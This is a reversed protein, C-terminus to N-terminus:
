NHSASSAAMQELSHAVLDKQDDANLNRRLIKEAISTSLQATHAYIEQLAQKKAAEIDKLAQEKKAEAEQQAHMTIQKSIREAEATAGQMMDRVKSEATALQGNYIRVAEEAKSKASEADVIDKRIKQERSNLGDLLHKWATKKLIYLLIAFIIIVWIAESVEPILNLQPEEKGEKEGAKEATKEATKEVAKATGAAESKKPADEARVSSICTAGLVLGALLSLVLVFRKMKQVM